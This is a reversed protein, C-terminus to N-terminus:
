KPIGAEDLISVIQDRISNWRSDDNGEQAIRRCVTLRARPKEDSGWNQAAAQVAFGIAERGQQDTVPEMEDGEEPTPPPPETNLEGFATWQSASMPEALYLGFDRGVSDTGSYSAPQEGHYSGMTAVLESADWGYVEGQALM